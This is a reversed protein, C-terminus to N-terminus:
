PKKAGEIIDELHEKSSRIGILNGDPDKFKALQGWDFDYYQYPINLADLKSCAQKVNEVNFRVCFKLRGNGDPEVLNEDDDLEIMLYSGNFDFCTLREKKYLERLGFTDKYFSVTESYNRTYLIIGTKDIDM